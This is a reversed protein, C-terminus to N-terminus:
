QKNQKQRRRILQVGVVLGLASLAAAGGLGVPLAGGLPAPLTFSLAAALSEGLDVGLPRGLPLVAFAAPAVLSSAVACFVLYRIKMKM